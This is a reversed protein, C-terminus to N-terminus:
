IHILSLAIVDMEGVVDSTSLVVVPDDSADENIFIGVEGSMIM